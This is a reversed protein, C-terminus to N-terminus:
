DPSQTYTQTVFTSDVVPQSYVDPRRVKLVPMQQRHRVAENRDLDAVLVQEGDPAVALVEGWPDVIMSHGYCWNGSADQGFQAAALVYALNEIARSRLLIEWHAQGTIKTFAAPIVILESGAAALQRYMEPFRLDYCISMGVKFEAVDATVLKDGALIATSETHTVGDPIDIDFLHIKRYLTILKGQPDFLLSTNYFRGNEPSSEILSGGHLYIGHQRAKAALREYTPGPIPECVDDFREYPGLFTMYEPLVVFEAGQGVAQDVLTLAREVNHDRNGQSNM